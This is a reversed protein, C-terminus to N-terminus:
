QMAQQCTKIEKGLVARKDRRVRHAGGADCVKQVHTRIRQLVQWPAARGRHDALGRDYPPAATYLLVLDVKSTHAVRESRRWELEIREDEKRLFGGPSPHQELREAPGAHQLIQVRTLRIGRAQALPAGKFPIRRPKVCKLHAPALMRLFGNRCQLDQESISSAALAGCAPDPRARKNQM